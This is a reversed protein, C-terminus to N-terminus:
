EAIASEWLAFETAHTERLLEEVRPSLTLEMTPSVNRQPLKITTNLREELFSLLAGQAEYRYLHQVLVKGNKDSVFRAQSGLRAYVPRDQACYDEVFTDFTIDRTSNPSGALSDRTRYRYWSGLWDTPERIVALLELNKLNSRDFFPKILKLYKAANTHKINSPTTITMSARRGLAGQLATSGTKPVALYVLKEEGFVLM